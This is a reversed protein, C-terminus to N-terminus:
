SLHSPSWSVLGKHRQGSGKAAIGTPTEVSLDQMSQQLRQDSDSGPEVFLFHQLLNLAVQRNPVSEPGVPDFMELHPYIEMQWLVNLLEPIAPLDNRAERHVAEWFPSFVSGPSTMDAILLVRRNAHFELKRVFPEIDAIGYIANACLVIDASSTVAEEWPAQVVSVNDVNLDIAGVQLVEVMSPSPEVVTVHKCRMALPLAYRGAGGGVDLLTTYGDIEQSLRNLVPDNVRYPDDKFLGTFPRWGDEAAKGQVKLAQCHHSEVREQWHDIASKM